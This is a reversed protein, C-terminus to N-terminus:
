GGRGAELVRQVLGGPRCPGVIDQGRLSAPFAWIVMNQYYDFGGINFGEADFVCPQSWTWGKECVITHMARRALELGFAAERHYAYLMGLMAQSPGHIGSPGWYGAALENEGAEGYGIIRKTRGGELPSPSFTVAGRQRLAVQGITKLGVEVRERPFVDELGNLKAMWEGDFQHALVADSKVGTSPDTYFNYYSGNWAEREMVHSGAEFWRRCRQAFESDGLEDAMAAAMQLSALRLGGVVPVIGSMDTSEWHCHGGDPISVTAADGKEQSVSIAYTLSKKVSPYFEDLFQRDSTRRWYRYVLDIYVPGNTSDQYTTREGVHPTAMEAGGALCTSDPLPSGSFNWTTWGDSGQYAKFARLLSLELEPFFYVIPVEGYFCCPICAMQPCSRWDDNMAFIGDERRCWEDVPPQAQAWLSDETILHLTNVLSDRLWTPLSTEGYVVTQWAIIRRLLKEHNRALTNAVDVADAYRSAYMHTYRNGGSMPTGCGKWHPSYWALVFRLVASEGAPLEFPVALSAGAQRVEAPLVRGIRTWAGGDVGIDGGTRLNAEDGVIGLAFSHEEGTVHIGTFPGSVATHRYAHNGCSEEPSPGPFSFAVTGKQHQDSGNRLSLEFVAAPTNSMAVDGPIFPTWSRLGVGIPADLEYEMDAIPYHGWYHIGKTTELAEIDPNPTAMSSPALGKTPRTTLLWTRREINVALFPLNLPGRRPVHSNFISCYGLTGDSELDLCGTDVCGLPMGCVPPNASHYIVGCVPTEYGTASFEIWERHALRPDFYLGDRYSM